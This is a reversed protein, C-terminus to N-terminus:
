RKEIKNGGTSNESQKGWLDRLLFYLGGMGFHCSFDRYSNTLFLCSDPRSQALLVRMALLAILLGERICLTMMM